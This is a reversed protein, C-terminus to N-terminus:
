RKAVRVVTYTTEPTPPTGFRANVAYLSPGFSAVTTPVDFGASTIVRDVRGSTFRGDLRVVAIRNLRNQVVFLERGELLLGDANVLPGGEVPITTAVGTRADVAYAVGSNTNVLILTRGDPTAVIGNANFGPGFVYDGTLALTESTGGSPLRGGPGLPIRYLVPRRSDTFYAAERTLVVDNVFLAGPFAFTAALAGTRGDYVRAEGSTGGAVFLLGTRIDYKLGLAPKGAPAVFVAGEGTRLDGRYIAGTALSGAYFTTGLGTAIGEPAFGNPLSITAPFAAGSPKGPRYGLLDCGALTIAAFALAFTARTGLPRLHKM